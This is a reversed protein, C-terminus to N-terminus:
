LAEQAESAAAAAMMVWLQQQATGGVTAQRVKLWGVAQAAAAGAAALLLWLV